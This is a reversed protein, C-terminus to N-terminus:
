YEEIQVILIELARRALQARRPGVHQGDAGTRANRFFVLPDQDLRDWPTAWTGGVLDGLRHVERAGGVGFVHCAGDDGYVTAGGRAPIMERPARLWNAAWSHRRLSGGRDSALMAPPLPGDTM